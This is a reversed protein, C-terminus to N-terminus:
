LLFTCVWHASSLAPLMALPCALQGSTNFFYPRGGTAARIRIACFWPLCPCACPRGRRIRAVPWGLRWFTTEISARLPLRWLTPQHLSGATKGM